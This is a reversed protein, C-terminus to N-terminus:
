EDSGRESPTGPGGAGPPAFHPNAVYAGVPIGYEMPQAGRIWRRDVGGPFLVEEQDPFPSALGLTANVDIGGPAQIDYRWRYRRHLAPAGMPNARASDRVYDRNATTSAFVTHPVQASGGYVHDIIHVIDPGYAKLGEGFVREPGDPSFRYLPGDHDRWLAEPFTAGTLPAPDAAVTAPDVPPTTSVPGTAPWGAPVPSPDPEGPATDVTSLRSSAVLGRGPLYWDWAPGESYVRGAMDTVGGASPGTANYEGRLGLSPIEAVFVHFDPDDQGYGWVTHRDTSVAVPFEELTEAFRADFRGDASWLPNRGTLASGDGPLVGNAAPGATGPRPSVPLPPAVPRPGEQAGAPDVPRAERWDAATPSSMTALSDILTPLPTGADDTGSLDAPFPSWWVSRGLRRAVLDALGPAPGGLGDLVLLVPTSLPLARLAEDAALLEAFEGAPVRYSTGDVSVDLHDDDQFDVSARVLYPVPKDKGTADQGAWPADVIGSPARFRSMGPLSASEDKWDRGGSTGSDAGPPMPKEFAGSEELDYAAAVHPDAMDRGVAFGRTLLAMVDDRLADGPEIAPDLHQLRTTLADADPGAATMTEEAKVRAWFMRARAAGDVEEPGSLQLAVVAADDVATTDQLWRAASHLVPLDVFSSVPLASGQQRVQAAAALVQRTVQQDVGSAAEPHAAVVRRLLDTSFPGTPGLAPDAHWMSDLAAAGRILAAHDPADEVDHGFVMRLARVLRLTGARSTPSPEGEFGAERALRDLEDGRPEPRNTDWWTRYGRADTFLVRVPDGQHTYAAQLSYSLRVTRRTVNALHQGMSVADDALPDAAFPVPYSAGIQSQDQTARDRMTSSSCIVLDIWHDEPLSSLSKRRRLWEGAERRGATRSTGDAMPLTMRGPQGHGALHYAKDKPGPDELPLAASYSGTAPNYHIYKTMQDLRSYNEERAGALEGPDHLSRGIQQGTLASVVPQTLVDRHWAPTGEDADPALGPRTPIWSGHPLGDRRIVAITSPGAPDPHRRALGSHVWVTHGTREALKRPLELYRDGASPVALVIPATVPLGQRALDAAVLEALDDADLATTTGDPLQATVTDHRGDALVAYPAVDWRWPSFEGAGTALFGGAADPTLEDIFLSELEATGTGTWNLGPVRTGNVSVFRARDEALVGEEDLHFATLAATSSARGAAIAREVMTYFDRRMEPDVLVHPAMHLVRRASADVDFAGARQAPDQRRLADLTEVAAAHGPSTVTITAQRGLDASSVQESAGVTAGQGPVRARGRSTVTFDRATLRPQGAPQNRQLTHLSRDLLEAFLEHAAAARQDGRARAAQERDQATGTGRADAGYGAIDTKPLPVRTRRNRLGAEAVQFALREVDARAGASPNAEGQGFTVLSLRPLAALPGASSAAAPAVFVQQGSGTTLATMDLDTMDLDPLDPGTMDFDFDGPEFSDLDMRDLVSLDFEPMDAGTGSQAAPAERTGTGAEPTGPATVPPTWRQPLGLGSRLTDALQAATGTGGGLLHGAVRGVADRFADGAYRSDALVPHPQAPLVLSVAAAWARAAGTEDAGEPAASAFDAYAGAWLRRSAQAAAADMTDTWADTRTMRVRLRDLPPLGGTPLRGDGRLMMETRQGQSLTIGAADLDELAVTESGAPEPLVAPLDSDTLQQAIWVRQAGDRPVVPPRDATDSDNGRATGLAEPAIGLALLRAEARELAARAGDVGAWAEAAVTPDGGAREATAAVAAAEGLATLTRGHADWAAALGRAAADAATPAAPPNAAQPQPRDPEAGVPRTRVPRAPGPRHPLAAHTDAVGGRTGTGTAPLPAQGDLLAQAHEDPFLGDRAVNERLEQETLPHINWYRGWNDAYDLAPDHGPVEDLALQAGRMVEHATHHGVTLSIALMGARILGLDLDIGWQERMRAAQVVFRYTSGATGTAVLGGSEEAGGQFGSEMALDYVATAPMWTLGFENVAIRREADSLPPRATDPDAPTVVTLQLEAIAAEKEALSTDSAQIELAKRMYEAYVERQRRSPREATIEAHMEEAGGLMEPVLDSSIGEYLFAVLERLNGSRVVRQLAERSKGVVGAKAKNVDGFTAWARPHQRRAAAWAASAMKRFEATVAEHEALYEGLRKDFAVSEEAYRIRALVWPPADSNRREPSPRASRGPPRSRARESTTVSDTVSELTTPRTVEPEAATAPESTPRTDVPGDSPAPEGVPTTRGSPAPTVVRHDDIDITVVRGQAPATASRVRKATKTLGFDRVGVHPGSRGAQFTGLARGLEAALASTVADARARASAQSRNGHGTVTVSPMPLGHARNWLGARALALALAGITGDADAPVDHRKEDFHITLQHLSPTHGHLVVTTLPNAVAPSDESLLGANIEHASEGPRRSYARFFWLDKSEIVPAAARIVEKARSRAVDVERLALAHEPRDEDFYWPLQEAQHVDALARAVSAFGETRSIEAEDAGSRRLGALRQGTAAALATLGDEGYRDLNEDIVDDLLGDPIESRSHTENELTIQHTGDEAALVVQAFHYPAHPGVRDGPKAHNHTFLQAGGQNTTSVSQILYGEGVGAWAYENVGIRRAATALRTRAADNRPEHSLASGYREGPTPAGVVGGTFRSDLGTRRAAWRPSVDTAPGTGEAIDALAEALHHTGTVERSHMGNVPATAVVGGTPGRFAVHSLPASTTGAVMRAFDRTFAYESGGSDTLFEPEVRFLPEGYSGDEGPLLVGVSEDARLRVGAGAAALRASSREIAARTAYAQRSRGTAGDGPALTALTRDQSVHLPPRDAMLVDGHDQRPMVLADTGDGARVEGVSRPLPPTFLVGTGRRDIVGYDRTTLPRARLAEIRHELVAQDVMRDFEADGDSSSRDDDSDVDSVSDTDSGSSLDRAGPLGGDEHPDTSAWSAATDGNNLDLMLHRTGATPHTAVEVPAEPHWVRRGTTGAVLSAVAAAYEPPLALVIDAGRPRRTDYAILRALEEASDVLFTRGPVSVEVGRGTGGAVVLYPNQWPAHRQIVRGRGRVAYSETEPPAHGPGTFDRGVAGGESDRLLTSEDFAGRGTEIQRDIFYLALDETSALDDSSADLALSGLLHVDAPGPRTGDGMHLVQRTVRILGNRLAQPPPNPGAEALVLGYLAESTEALRDRPVSGLVPGFVANLWGQGAWAPPEAEDDSDTDSEDSAEELTPLGDGVPLPPPVAGDPGTQPSPAPLSVPDVWVPQRLEATAGARADAWSTGEPPTHPTIEGAVAAWLQLHRPRLGSQALGDPAPERFAGLLSGPADLRDPNGADRSEDRLFLQHALEHAFEVPDADAWWARQNMRQDRGVLDVTLHPDGDAPVAEVTVHLRDGDPLEHGPENYFQEVGQRVRAMVADTDAQGDGGRLALRVTLDTVTGGGHTFRRVDFASRVVIRPRDDLRARPAGSPQPAAADGDESREPGPAPTDGPGAERLPIRLATDGDGEPVLHFASPDAVVRHPTAEQDLDELVPALTDINAVRGIWGSDGRLITGTTTHLFDHGFRTWGDPPIEQGDPLRIHGTDAVEYSFPESRSEAARTWTFWRNPRTGELAPVDGEAARVPSKGKATGTDPAPGPAPTGAAARVETVPVASGPDVGGYRPRMVTIPRGVPWQEAVPDLGDERSGGPLGGPGRTSVHRPGGRHDDVTINVTSSASDGTSTRRDRVSVPDVTFRDATLHPQPTGDQLAALATALEQRFSAAVADARVKAIDRGILRGGRRGTVQVDPLPLGNSENWLAARAVVKALYRLSHTAGEPTQQSGKEFVVPVPLAQQGRLVVATLPNAEAAPRDELLEANTDHASEGPRQSYMRMYWQHKGAIVPELQGIRLAAARTAGELTKEAAAREPSGAPAAHMDAQAQKARVLALTLDLYGRLETVQKEAGEDPQGEIEQRLRSAIERLEALDHNRLNAQAARRHRHNRQSARAHNELSIQDSGDESALVVTAFHYGFHGGGPGTGPKAYNHELSPQGQEGAAAVSQVVYGEGIDAWAHENIGIRRAADSLADRRPDDQEALSLASGYARGPLPGGDGGTPRDDQRVLSAAWDPDATDPHTEGDALRGLAEALHHTGTVEAGDSANVPAIVAPGAGPTRFVMHTTRSTDAVMDAFDRCIEETSQGSRTLFVPTVLFLQRSGGGPTPLIVSLDPDTRLRVVTGARALKVSARAVAEETAFVQQGYMGNEVALTRDSAIRLVPRETVLTEHYDQVSMALEPADETGTLAQPSQWSGQIGGPRRFIVETDRGNVVGYNTTTLPEARRADIGERHESDGYMGVIDSVESDSDADEGPRASEWVTGVDDGEGLPGLTIHDTGTRWDTSPRPAHESYWVRSGTLDAVHQALSAIDGHPVVLVIDAGAPRSPDRAVIRAFEGPDDLTLTGRPTNLQVSDTDGQALVTYAAPWPAPWTSLRGDEGEVAYADLPPVEAGTGTWNRGAGHESVLRTGRGLAADHSTLYASLSEEDALQSPNASLALSGLVLLHQESVETDPAIGLVRRALGHLPDGTAGTPPQPHRQALERLSLATGVLMEASYDDRAAPGFLVDLWVQHTTQPSGAESDSYESDESDDSYESDSTDDPDSTDDTFRFQALAEAETAAGSMTSLEYAEEGTLGPLDSDAAPSGLSPPLPVAAPDQPQVPPPTPTTGVPTTTRPKPAPTRTLLPVFDGGRRRLLVTPSDASPGSYTHATGNEEILTVTTGTATAAWAAVARDAGPGWPALALHRRLHGDRADESPDPAGRRTNMPPPTFLSDREGREGPLGNLRMLKAPPADARTRLRAAEDRDTGPQAAAHHLATSLAAFFGNGRGSPTGQTYTAGDPATLVGDRGLRFRPGGAEGPPMWPPTTHNRHAPPKGTGSPTTDTDPTTGAAPAPLPTVAPAVSGQPLAAHFFGDAALLVPDAAPDVAAPDTGHPLFLQDRGEGTVVTLPTGLVRAALAPLLDAGGHDGARRDPPAPEGDAVDQRPESAFPRSLAAGALAVRQAPTPWVTVPLRGFADFEAQQAATLKIGAADLEAQTFTDAVDLALADLLDENGDQGLAWALRDRATGIAEATVAPDGPSDAFRGALDAGLLHPLRGRDQAVAVLAHFFSAGDHPVEHVERVTAGDPSTLTRPATDTAATIRYPEPAESRWAPETYEQPLDKVPVSVSGQHHATLRSAALHLRHHDAAATDTRQKWRNVEDRAAQWATVAPSPKAVAGSGDAGLAAREGDTLGLWTERARARADYYGKEATALDGAAKAQDDWATLVEDTFSSDDLLGHDRAIDERLWVLATTRAEAARPGREAKGLAYMARSDTVRHHVDAVALWSVPVAFLMSRDTVVKIHTGLTTDATGKLTTGDNTGGIPVTGGPNTVGANSNGALPATGVAGEVNDTIGADLADSTKSRQMAEMRPKNEVALLRAGSRHMRAYLRSDATHSQGFLHTSAQTPLSTGSAGLAERFGSTLGVQATAEQQAQGPATGLGTLPTLRATRVRGDLVAGTHRQGLDTDGLGDARATALTLADHVNAAGRIDVALIGSGVVDDFPLVDPDASGTPNGGSTRWAAIGEPRAQDATLMRVAREPEPVDQETLAGDAGDGDPTLLSAPLVEHLSGVPVESASPALPGGASDTMTVTLTYNTVIEAHAQTTAINPMATTGSTQTRASSRQKAATGQLSPNAVLIGSDAAREGASLTVDAGRDQSTGGATDRATTRYDELEYGTRLRDVTTTVPTLKFTMRGPSGGVPLHFPSSWTRYRVPLTLGDTTLEHLHAALFDPSLRQLVQERDHSPVGAKELQSMLQRAAPGADLQGSPHTPFRRGRLFPPVRYGGGLNRPTTTALGDPALGAEIVDQMPLHFMVADRIRQLAAAARRPALSNGLSESLRGALPSIRAGSRTGVTGMAATWRDRVAITEATDAVVLYMRGAYTLTTNRGRTVTQAASRGKGWAYQMATSYSGVVAPQGPAQQLPMDAGQLGLTTRSVTSASGNVRHENGVTAEMSAAKPDSKVRFNSLEGRIAAKLYHTRFPGAGNLGTVRSGFPGLYQGLQGAINLNAMARRLATRVPAGPASVHWSTGSARDATDQTLRQRQPGGETSLVVHPASLLKATLQRDSPQTRPLPRVGDLLQDAETSSLQQPAAATAAPTQGGPPPDAPAHHESGHAAPVALEVRGVTENGRTFLPREEVKSVFVGAGLLGISALRAWGRPRRHGEFSANLEVQYSYLDAGNQFMLHDHTVAVTNRTAKQDTRAHRAGVAVSGTQRPLGAEPVKDHDRPSIGLEVGGSLTIAAQQGQGSVETGIVANRLSRESMTTEFRRDTLRAGLILTHHGRRVKGDETLTVPVGTTTLDDLSQALSPRNLAERVQRDNHLATRMRGDGYWFKALRPHRLMFPPVFLSPYSQHLTDLVTDAFARMPDQPAPRVTPAPPVTQSQEPQPPGQPSTQGQPQTQPQPQLPAAQEIGQPQPRGPLFGEARVQGSLHVPDERTLYWPVPPEVDPDPGTRGPTRSDWGALRRADQTSIWDLSVVRVPRAASPLEGPKRVMLTREVRYLAVPHNRVRGTTKRAADAGLYHGRGTSVDVRVLPGGQLRVDTDVGILTYNPGATVQFGLRTDRVHGRENQYTTQTLDRLETKVSEAVLTARHPVSREVILHGLPHQGSGRTLEPGTVPGSFRGFLALLRGPRVYSVLTRHASGGPRAGSIALAVDEPPDVLHLGTTDAMRPEAGDPFTLTEPARRPGKSPVTLDDPIRWSLGDRMAFEATHVQTRQWNPKQPPPTTRGTTGDSRTGPGPVPPAETVRDVRVRYHVDDLHLHSGEWNRWESQNYAQTGQAYDTKRTWGLSFGLKLLWNLPPGMSIGGAIRRGFGVSRGGGTGAQGRRMTDLRVTAGDVDSFREWRHYPIAEVTMEHGVGSKERGVFRAGRPATFAGPQDTLLRLLDAEDFQARLNAPLKGLIEDAVQEPSRLTTRGLGTFLGTPRSSTNGDTRSGPTGDGPDADPSILITPLRSGDEFTVTAPVPGPPRADQGTLLRAPRHRELQTELPVRDGRDPAETDASDLDTIGGMSRLWEGLPGSGAPDPTTTTSGPDPTPKPDPLTTTSGPDPTPKPDPLTTTSGPD